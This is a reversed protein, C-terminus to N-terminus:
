YIIVLDIQAGEESSDSRWPSVLSQVGPIGLTKM